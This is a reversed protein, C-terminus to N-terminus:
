GRKKREKPHTKWGSTPTHAPDGPPLPSRTCIPCVHGPWGPSEPVGEGTWRAIERGCWVPPIDPAAEFPPAAAGLEEGVWM